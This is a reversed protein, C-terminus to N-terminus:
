KRHRLPQCTYTPRCVRTACSAWSYDNECSISLGLQAAEFAGFRSGPRPPRESYRERGNGKRKGETGLSGRNQFCRAGSRRPRSVRFSFGGGGVTAGKVIRGPYRLCSGQGQVIVAGLVRRTSAVASLMSLDLVLVALFGSVCKCSCM